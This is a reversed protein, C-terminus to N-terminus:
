ASVFNSARVDEEGLRRDVDGVTAVVKAVQEVVIV